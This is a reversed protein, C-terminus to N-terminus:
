RYGRRQRPACRERGPLASNSPHAVLMLDAHNVGTPGTMLLAGISALATGSDFRSLADAGSRGADAIEQWTQGDIFAGAAANRDPGDIGDTGAILAARDSRGAWRQALTLALQQARGGRGPTTPLTVTSEGGAVLIQGPALQEAEAALLDAVVEVDGFLDAQVVRPEWGAAQAAIAATERMARLGAALIVADHPRQVLASATPPFHLHREVSRPLAVHGCHRTWAELARARLAAEHAASDIWGRVGDRPTSRDGAVGPSDIAAPPRGDGRTWPGVTPGSGIVDVDDGVVDSIVVTLVPAPCALALRGGKIASLGRRMANLDAIPAGSRSVQGIADIAEAPVVEDAFREVLASAGGSVLALFLGCAPTTAALTLAAQGAALSGAGPVPHQGVMCRFDPVAAPYPAVLLGVVSGASQSILAAAARAMPVAAKGIAAIHVPRRALMAAWEPRELAARVRAGPDVGTLSARFVHELRGRLPSGIMQVDALRVARHVTVHRVLDNRGAPPGGSNAPRSAM